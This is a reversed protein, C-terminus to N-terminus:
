RLNGLETEDPLGLQANMTENSNNASEQPSHWHHSDVDPRLGSGFALAHEGSAPM